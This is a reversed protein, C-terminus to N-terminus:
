WSLGTLAVSKRRLVANAAAGTRIHQMENEDPDFTKQRGPIEKWAVGPPKELSGQLHIDLKVPNGGWDGSKDTGDRGPQASPRRQIGPLRATLEQGRAPGPSDPSAGRQPGGPSWRRQPKMGQGRLNFPSRALRDPAAETKPPTQEQACAEPPQTDM